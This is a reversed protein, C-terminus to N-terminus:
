FFWGAMEGLGLTVGSSLDVSCEGRGGWPAMEARLGHMIDDHDMNTSSPHLTQRKPKSRPDTPSATHNLTHIGGCSAHRSRLLGPSTATPLPPPGKLVTHTHQTNHTTETHRHKPTAPM